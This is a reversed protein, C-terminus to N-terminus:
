RTLGRRAPPAAFFRQFVLPAGFSAMGGICAYRILDGLTTHPLLLKLGEKVALLLALGIVLKAVQVGAGGALPDFGVFAEELISGVWFGTYAAILILSEAFIKPSLNWPGVQMIVFMILPVGIASLLQVPLSFREGTWFPRTAAMAWLMLGGIVWGGVVDLPWHVGMYLRSFGLLFILVMALATVWPQRLEAAFAGWFMLPGQSHGSPFAPGRGTEPHIVRVDAPSPRGTGFAFKLMNNSWYGVAFVSMMYRAFRKDYFWVLLPIVLLYVTEHHLQTVAYFFTDLSASQISQIARLIEM